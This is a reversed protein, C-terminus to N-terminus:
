NYGELKDSGYIRQSKTTSIKAALRSNSIDYTDGYCNVCDSGEVVLYDSGTDFIVDLPYLSGM